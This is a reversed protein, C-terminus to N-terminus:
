LMSVGTSFLLVVCLFLSTGGHHSKDLKYVYVVGLHCQQTSNRSGVCAVM